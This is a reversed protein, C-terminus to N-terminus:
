FGRSPLVGKATSAGLLVGQTTSGGPHYFARPPPVGPQYFVRGQTTSGGPQYFGRASLVGQSTSSYPQYFERAPLAGQTTSGGAPSPPPVNMTGGRPPMGIRRILNSLRSKDNEDVGQLTHAMNRARTLTHTQEAQLWVANTNTYQLLLVIYGGLVPRGNCFSRARSSGTPAVVVQEDCTGYQGTRRAQPLVKAWCDPKMPGFM